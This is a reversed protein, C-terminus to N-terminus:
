TLATGGCTSRIVFVNGENRPTTIRTGMMGHSRTELLPPRHRTSSVRSPPLFYILKSERTLIGKANLIELNEVVAYLDPFNSDMDLLKNTWIAAFDSNIKKTARVFDWVAGNEQVDSINYDLCKTFTVEL